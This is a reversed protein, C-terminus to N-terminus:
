GGSGCLLGRTFFWPGRVEPKKCVRATEECWDCRPYLSDPALGQVALEADRQSAVPLVAYADHLVEGKPVNLSAKHVLSILLAERHRQSAAQVSEEDEEIELEDEGMEARVDEADNLHGFQDESDDMIVDM